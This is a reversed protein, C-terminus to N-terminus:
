DVVTDDTRRPERKAGYLACLESSSGSLSPVSPDIPTPMRGSVVAVVVRTEGTIPDHLVDGPTTM